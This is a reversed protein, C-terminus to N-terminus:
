QNSNKMESALNVSKDAFYVYHSEEIAHKIKNQSVQYGLLESIIYFFALSNVSEKNEQQYTYKAVLKDLEIPSRNITFLPIEIQSKGYSMGHGKGVVEGHDSFYIMIASSDSKMLQHAQEIFRDTHHLSRNYDNVIETLNDNYPLAARDVADYGDKYSAHSGNLGM